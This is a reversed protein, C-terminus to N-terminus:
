PYDTLGLESLLGERLRFKQIKTASMPWEKVIRVYRPVKFSAIATKCYAILEEETATAGPVLEVFAAPVELLREDPVGVVQAMKVAQHTALYSEVEIAAVNEGGVKLMDKIRGHYRVRGDPDISCLDGTHFFGEDDVVTRTLEENRYYGTFRSPGRGTLEGREGPPLPSGTDPDVVRIEFGPLPRGCTAERVETPDDLETFIVTGCLETIGYASMLAAPAFADQVQRQVDVPAVNVVVRIRALDLSSFRQHHLLTLTITPFLPYLVAAQEGIIMDFAEDADFRPTSIFTAGAAFCATMLMLAGAHFMPLPDWWRDGAPIKFRDVIGCADLVIARHSLMCGKPHATTGSTYLILATTDADAEDGRDAAPEGEALRRLEAAGVFGAGGRRGYLAIARLHPADPLRLCTADPADSIGPLAQRLLATFDVHEDIADTTLVATLEADTIVHRLERAKLRTNIPVMTASIMSAAILLEVIEPANPMLVGFRHGPGVGLARLERTRFTANELLQRYTLRAGPFVLAQRDPAQEVAARFLSSFTQADSAIVAGTRGSSANGIEGPLM